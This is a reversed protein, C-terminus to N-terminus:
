PNQSVHYEAATRLKQEFELLSSSRSRTWRSESLDFVSRGEKVIEKTFSKQHGSSAAYIYHFVYWLPHFLFFVSNLFLALIGGCSFDVKQLEHITIIDPKCPTLCLREFVM